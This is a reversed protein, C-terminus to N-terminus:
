FMRVFRGIRVQILYPASIRLTFRAIGTSCSLPTWAVMIGCRCDLSLGNTPVPSLTTCPICTGPFRIYSTPHAVRNRGPTRRRAPAYKGNGETRPCIYTRAPSARGPRLLGTPPVPDHCGPRAHTRVYAYAHTPTPAGPEVIRPGPTHSRTAHRPAVDVQGRAVNPGRYVQM